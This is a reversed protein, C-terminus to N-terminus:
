SALPSMLSARIPSRAARALASRAPPPSTSSAPMPMGGTSASAAIKGGSLTILGANSIASAGSGGATLSGGAAVTLKGHANITLSALTVSSSLTPYTSAGVNITVTDLSNGGPASTAVKNTASNIWNKVDTWSAGDSGTWIYNTAAMILGRRKFNIIKAFVCWSLSESFSLHNALIGCDTMAM